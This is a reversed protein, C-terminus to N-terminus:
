APDPGIGAPVPMTWGRCALVASGGVLALHLGILVLLDVPRRARVSGRGSCSRSGSCVSASWASWASWRPRGLVGAVNLEALRGSSQAVRVFISGVGVLIALLLVLDLPRAGGITLRAPRRGRISSAVWSGVWGLLCVLAIIKVWSLIPGWWVPM